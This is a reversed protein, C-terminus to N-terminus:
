VGKAAIWADVFDHAPAAMFGIDLPSDSCRCIATVKTPKCGVMKAVRKGSVGKM